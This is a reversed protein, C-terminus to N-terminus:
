SLIETLNIILEPFALLSITQNNSLFQNIQYSNNQPDRYVELSKNNLNVLLVEPINSAAYLPIKVDRDYLYYTFFTNLRM